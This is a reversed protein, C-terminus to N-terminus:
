ITGLFLRGTLHCRSFRQWRGILHYKEVLVMGWNAEEPCWCTLGMSSAWRFHSVLGWSPLPCPLAILDEHCDQIACLLSWDAWCAWLESGLMIKTWELGPQTGPDSIVDWHNCVWMMRLTLELVHCVSAESVHKGYAICLYNRMLMFEPKKPYWFHTKTCHYSIAREVTSPMQLFRSWWPLQSNARGVEQAERWSM